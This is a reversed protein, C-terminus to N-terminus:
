TIKWVQWTMMAFLNHFQDKRSIDLPTEKMLLWHVRVLALLGTENLTLMLYAPNFNQGLYLHLNQAQLTIACWSQLLVHSLVRLCFKQFRSIFAQTVVVFQTSNSLSARTSLVRTVVFQTSNFGVCSSLVRTVSIVSQVHPLVVYCCTRRKAVFKLSLTRADLQKSFLLRFCILARSLKSLYWRLPPNCNSSQLELHKLMISLFLVARTYMSGREDRQFM